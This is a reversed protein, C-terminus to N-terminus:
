ANGAFLFKIEDKLSNKAYLDDAYQIIYVRRLYDYAQNRGQITDVNLEM